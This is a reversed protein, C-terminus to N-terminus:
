NWTIGALFKRTFQLAMEMSVGSLTFHSLLGQREDHVAAGLYLVDYLGPYKRYARACFTGKTRVARDSASTKGIFDEHCEFNTVDEEGAYNDPYVEEIQTQYM